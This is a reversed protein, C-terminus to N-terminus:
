IRFGILMNRLNRLLVDMMGMEDIETIHRDKPYDRDYHRRRFYDLLVFVESLTAM